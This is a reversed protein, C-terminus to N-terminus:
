GNNTRRVNKMSLTIKKKKKKPITAFNEGISHHLVGDDAKYAYYPVGYVTELEAWTERVYLIDGKRYKCKCGDKTLASLM